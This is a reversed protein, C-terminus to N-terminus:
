IYFIENPLGHKQKEFELRIKLSNRVSRRAYDRIQKHRTKDNARKQTKLLTARRKADITKFARAMFRTSDKM